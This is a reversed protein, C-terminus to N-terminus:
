DAPVIRRVAVIVSRPPLPGTVITGRSQSAHVWTTAGLAIGLHDIVGDWDGDLFVLDGARISENWFDVASGRLAQSPSHHILTIGIRGYAAMSLGSCDFTAPGATFFEYPKGVQALAYDVVAQAPGATAPGATAPGATTADIPLLLPTGPTILSSASLRNVALLSNLSVRYRAAIGSLTDGAVVTHVPGAAAGTSAGGAQDQGEPVALRQGPLIVSTVTLGNARLLDDLRVGLAGAIGSLTDGDDVVYTDGSSATAVTPLTLAAATLSVSLILQTLRAM